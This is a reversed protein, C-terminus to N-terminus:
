SPEFKVNICFGDGPLPPLPSCHYKAFGEVPEFVRTIVNLAVASVPEAPTIDKVPTSVDSGIPVVNESATPVSM